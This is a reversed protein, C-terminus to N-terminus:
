TYTLYATCNCDVDTVFRVWHASFGEPFVFYAYSTAATASANVTITAITNWPEMYFKAGRHGSQGDFDVQIQFTVPGPFAAPARPAGRGAVTRVRRTLFNPAPADVRLHAVKKDFGTMLYPDSPVGAQVVDYRWPGGWGQPKGGLSWLDDTKGFWLGSQSQGTVRNNDFISSVQNGGLVLMGRFSAFDPVMRLHQSIPRLGWTAGGYAFAPLEYFMGHMDILYRESEVERIRPWETTWLHDYAHSAKPLRYTQLGGFAPEDGGNEIIKLIVSADDWGLAFVVEGM